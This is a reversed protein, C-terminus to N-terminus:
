DKDVAKDLEKLSEKLAKQAKDMEKKFEDSRLENMMQEFEKHYQKMWKQADTQAIHIQKELEPRQREIEAHWQKELEPGQREIEALADDIEAQLEPVEIHLSSEPSKEPLKLTVGQERKDRVIALPVSGSRRHMIRRWDSSCSIPENAAKVIVDGAKLGASDAVSGRDVARVLVGGNRVGFFEALQPTLDEVMLGNRSSSQLVIVNPIDIDIPPMPPVMPTMAMEEPRKALAVNLTISQGDRSIALPVTKGPQSERLMRRLQDLNTVPKGNFSLIVDHEKLGAKGAPSDRDVMMVEIGRSENLKLFGLREPTVDRADVGLYSGGQQPVVVRLQRRERRPVQVPPAPPEPPPAQQEMEGYSLTSLLAVAISTLIKHQM